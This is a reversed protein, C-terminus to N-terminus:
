RTPCFFSRREKILYFFSVLALVVGIPSSQLLLLIGNALLFWFLWRARYRHKVMAAFIMILGVTRLEGIWIYPAIGIYIQFYLVLYIFANSFVIFWMGLKAASKGPVGASM